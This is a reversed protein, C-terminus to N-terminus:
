LSALCSLIGGTCTREASAFQKFDCCLIKTTNTDWLTQNKKSTNLWKHLTTTTSADLHVVSQLANLCEEDCHM